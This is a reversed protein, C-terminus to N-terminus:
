FIQFYQIRNNRLLILIIDPIANDTAVPPNKNNKALFTGYGLLQLHHPTQLQEM